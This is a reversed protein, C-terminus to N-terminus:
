HLTRTIEDFRPRWLEAQDAAVSARVLFAGDERELYAGYVLLAVGDVNTSTTLAFGPTTSGEIATVEPPALTLGAFRRGLLAGRARDDTPRADTFAAFVIDVLPESSPFPVAHGGVRLLIQENSVPVVSMGEPAACAVSLAALPDITADPDFRVSDVIRAAIRSDMSRHSIAIRAMAGGNWVTLIHLRESRGIAVDLELGEVGGGYSVPRAVVSGEAGARIQAFGEEAIAREAGPEVTADSVQISLARGEDRWRLTHPVRTATSPISLAVRSGPVELAVLAEPAEEDVDGSGRESPSSAASAGCGALGGGLALLAFLLPTARSTM